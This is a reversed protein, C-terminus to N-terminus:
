KPGLAALARRTAAAVTTPLQTLEARLRDLDEPTDVDNWAPLVVHSRAGIRELTTPMVAPTSWRVDAFLEPVPLRAGILHYGGDRSPGVVVDHDMLADLAEHVHARPLTPADSGLIITPGDAVYAHLARSLKAGLEGDGQLVVTLRQSKALHVISPNEVDGAVALIRRAGLGQTLQCTDELFAEYLGLAATEGVARALRLKVEGLAPARAFIILTSM